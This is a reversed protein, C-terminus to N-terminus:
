PKAETQTPASLIAHAQAGGGKELLGAAYALNALASFVEHRTAVFQSRAQARQTEANLLDLVSRLGAKYADLALDYAASASKLFADSFTYKELAAAYNQYRSWVDGSAALEAQKLQARASDLDAMAARRASLTQLGDFLTWQLSLGAGYSWDNDAVGGLPSSGQAGQDLLNEGYDRNVSGTLYLSPWLQAGAVRVAAQRAKVAARLAAVDPRRAIAEDIMRRLDPEAIPPPVDATLPAPKVAADAPLGLTLALAGGAIKFQGQASARGYLAQDYASQAQLVDLDTGVGAQNRTQAADLAAKADAVNAEAAEVGAQASLLGYYALEVALLVDQIARNFAFDAAYVTQLAQEVAAGTGGGFNLLLYNMQLGPGYRLYDQDFTDPQATTRQWNARATGTITPMLYGRTGTAHEAAARADNWARASSPNNRLALDAMEALAIPKSLDPTQARVASWTGVPARARETPTWPTAVDVPLPPSMCGSVLAAVGIVPWCRIGRTRRVTRAPANM